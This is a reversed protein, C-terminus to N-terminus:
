RPISTSLFEIWALQIKQVWQWLWNGGGLLVDELFRMVRDLGAGMARLPHEVYGIFTVKAEILTTKLPSQAMPVPAMPRHWDDWHAEAQANLLLGSPSSSLASEVMVGMVPSPLTPQSVSPCLAVVSSSPFVRPRDSRLWPTIVKFGRGLLRLVTRVLRGMGPLVVMSFSAAPLGRLAHDQSIVWQGYSPSFRGLQQEPGFFHAVAAQIWGWIDGPISAYGERPTAMSSGQVRQIEPKGHAQSPPLHAAKLASRWHSGHCNISVLTGQVVPPIARAWKRVLDLPRLVFAPKAAFTPLPTVAELRGVIRKQQQQRWKGLGQLACSLRNLLPAPSRARSYNLSKGLARLWLGIRKHPQPSQPKEGHLGTQQRQALARDLSQRMRMLSYLLAEITWTTKLRARRWMQGAQNHWRQTRRVVFTLLRSQFPM